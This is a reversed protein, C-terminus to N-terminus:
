YGRAREVLHRLPRGRRLAEVNAAVVAAASHVDTLAAVHPLVTVGPHRWFAHAPPLPEVAFVDLVAHGVQGADLAALLDPEVVHAGRALNVFGAGRKMRAFRAADFLGRTAATLPLLNVVIDSRALLAGLAAEGHLADIGDLTKATSSWGRVRYGNVLLRRAVATGLAGLGLVAVEIAEARRQAHPQWHARRQREAYAHFGRHLGLVAWLATQAIADTMVPDVMRTLPVDAPLSADALLREVGAWLSQVLALRPLGALAGPPPNAVIAVDIQAAEAASGRQTVFSERPLAARLCVALHRARRRRRGRDGAPHEHRV